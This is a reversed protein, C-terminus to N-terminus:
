SSGGRPMHAAVIQLVVATETLAFGLRFGAPWWPQLVCALGLAMGLLSIRDLAAARPLAKM